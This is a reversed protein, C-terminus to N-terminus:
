YKKDVFFYWNNVHLTLHFCAKIETESSIATDLDNRENIDLFDESDSFDNISENVMKTYQEETLYKQRKAM